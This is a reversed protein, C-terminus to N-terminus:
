KFLKEIFNLHGIKKNAYILENIKGVVNLEGNRTDFKNIHLSHGKITLYGMETVAVIQKEDFNNVDRVGTLNLKERNELLLNHIANKSNPSFQM